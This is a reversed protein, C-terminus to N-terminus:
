KHWLLFGIIRGILYGVICWATFPDLVLALVCMTIAFVIVETLLSYHNM